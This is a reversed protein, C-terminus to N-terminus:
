VENSLEHFSSDRDCYVGKVVRKSNSAGRFDAVIFNISINLAKKWSSISTKDRKYLPLQFIYYAPPKAVDEYDPKRVAFRLWKIFKLRDQSIKRLSKLIATDRALHVWNSEAPGM